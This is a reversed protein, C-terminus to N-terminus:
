KEDSDDSSLLNLRKKQRMGLNTLTADHLLKRGNIHNNKRASMMIKANDYSYSAPDNPFVDIAILM